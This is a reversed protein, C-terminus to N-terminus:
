RKSRGSPSKWNKGFCWEPDDVFGHGPINWRAGLEQARRLMAVWETPYASRMAPFVRHLYAESLFAM